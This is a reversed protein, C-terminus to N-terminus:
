VLFCHMEVRPNSKGASFNLTSGPLTDEACLIPMSIALSLCVFSAHATAACAPAGEEVLRRRSPKRSREEELADDEDDAGTAQEVGDTYKSPTAHSRQQSANAPPPPAGQPKRRFRPDSIDDVELEGTEEVLDSSCCGM